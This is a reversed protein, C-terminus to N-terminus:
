VLPSRNVLVVPLVGIMNRYLHCGAAGPIWGFYAHVSQGVLKAALKM